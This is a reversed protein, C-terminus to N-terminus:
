KADPLLPHVDANPPSCSGTPIRSLSFEADSVDTTSFDDFGADSIPFPEEEKYWRCVQGPSKIIMELTMAVEKMTPRLKGNWSICRKTLEFIAILEDENAERAIKPDLIDSMRSNQALFMFETVVNKQEMTNADRYIPKKATLLELLVVGFSYVDSKETFQYSQFYEPDLYGMTGQVLTTLHTQDIAITKSSGFDSVKARHKEDLLINSSKIDRHYIPISASSHLYAVAAASEAAIKLCMEWSIVFDEEPNHIHEFLTGNPIFEYVLLPVETELCCGLLKVVNRHNIQSLIVVENIFQELQSEDLLKAKKIAVISGDGLMGKYVTGQGGEGLIRNENFHDTAKDLEAMSFITTREVIGESSSLQQQLLLGGNRKFNKARRKMERRRKIFRYMGYLALVLLVIGFSIGLRDCSSSSDPLLQGTLNWDGHCFGPCDKCEKPVQCGNPLYPNGYYGQMCEYSGDSYSEARPNNPEFNNLKWELVVPFGSQPNSRSLMGNHYRDMSETGIITALSCNRHEGTSQGNFDIQYFQLDPYFFSTKCCHIGNCKGSPIASNDSYCVTGCQTIFSKNESFLVAIHQCGEMVFLNESTSYSYPSTRLDIGGLQQLHTDANCSNLPHMRVKLTQPLYSSFGPLDVRIVEIDLKSLFPLEIPSGNSNPSAQQRRCEIEFWHDLSCDRGIGFPFPILVSGCTDNCGPKALIPEETTAAAAAAVSVLLLFYFFPFQSAM